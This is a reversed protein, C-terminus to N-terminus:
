ADELYDAASGEAKEEVENRVERVFDQDFPCDDAEDARCGGSRGYDGAFEAAVFGREGGVGDDAVDCCGDYNRQKERKDFKVCSAAEDALEPNDYFAYEGNQYKWEQKGPGVPYENRFGVGPEDRVGFVEAEIHPREVQEHDHGFGDTGYHFTVDRCAKFPQQCENAKCGAGQLEVAAFVYARAVAFADRDALGEALFVGDEGDPYDEGVEGRDDGYGRDAVDEPLVAEVGVLEVTEPVPFFRM